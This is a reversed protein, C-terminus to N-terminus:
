LWGEVKLFERDRPAKVIKALAAKISEHLTEDARCTAGILRDLRALKERDASKKKDAIVALRAAIQAQKELLKEELTKKHRGTIATGHSVM